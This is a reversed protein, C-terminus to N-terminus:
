INRVVYKKMEKRAALAFGRVNSSTYLWDEGVLQVTYKPPMTEPRESSSRWFAKACKPDTRSTLIKLSLPYAKMLNEVFTDAARAMTATCLVSTLPCVTLHEQPFNLTIAVSAVDGMLVMDEEAGTFLVLSVGVPAAVAAAVEDDAFDACNWDDNWRLVDKAGLILLFPPALFSSSALFPDRCLALNADVSFIFSVHFVGTAPQAAADPPILAFCPSLEICKLIRVFISMFIKVYQVHFLERVLRM